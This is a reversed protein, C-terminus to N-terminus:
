HYARRPRMAGAIGFNRPFSRGPRYMNLSKTLLQILQGITQELAEAGQKLWAAALAPWHKIAITQNVLYSEAKDQPLMEHAQECLAATINGVLVKAHIEQEIAHPLEGTFGELHLRHKLTKFGEEIKWRAHYLAAFEAAPYTQLDLLSTALVEVHGTPLVVRILRLRVTLGAVRQGGAEVLQGLAKGTLRLEVIHETRGSRLFATVENRGCGCADMRACFAVGKQALLAFLWCGPYGRDMVLLDKPSLASLCRVLLSREGNDYRGIEVHLMQRSAVAFLGVLRAMVVSGDKNPGMGYENQTEPWAAVRVCSGDCAIVRWGQWLPECAVALWERVWLACLASFASPLLKKRAKSLASKTVVRTFDAGGALAGFFQDLGVQLSRGGIMQLVFVVLVEFTLHRQRTFDKPRLRHAAIFAPCRLKTAM